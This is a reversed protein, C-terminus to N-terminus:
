YFVRYEVAIIEGTYQNILLADDGVRVWVYGRPPAFLSYMLFNTIWYSQAYYGHPLHQGYSWRRPAYGHPPRYAPAHYRHTAQVNRRLSTINVQANNNNNRNGNNRNNNNNNKNGHNTNGRYSNNTNRTNSNVPPLTKPQQTTVHQGQPGGQNSQQHGQPGGKSSSQAQPGGRSSSQGQPGGQSSQQGQPGGAGRNSPQAWDASAWALSAAAAVTMLIARKM